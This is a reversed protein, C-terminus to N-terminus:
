VTEEQATGIHAILAACAEIASKITDTDLQEDDEMDSTEVADLIVSIIEALRACHELRRTRQATLFARGEAEKKAEEADHDHQDM